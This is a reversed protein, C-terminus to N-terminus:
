LSSGEMLASLRKRLQRRARFARVRVRPSSWGTMACIQSVSKEELHLWTLILRDEPALNSLLKEVLDRAALHRDAGLDGSTAALSQVVQEEEESLDAYLLEPRIREHAIQKLCTNVAVRSVWHELPVAGSYQDLKSFVKMFVTQVLDEESTRRPLHSRVLKLVLPRLRELLDRAATEDGQRVRDV